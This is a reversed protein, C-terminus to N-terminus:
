NYLFNLKNFTFVLSRKTSLYEEGLHLPASVSSSPTASTARGIPFHTIFTFLCIKINLNTEQLFKILFSKAM